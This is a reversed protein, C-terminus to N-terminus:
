SEHATAVPGQRNMPWLDLARIISSHRTLRGSRSYQPGAVGLCCRRHMSKTPLLMIFIALYTGHADCLVFLCGAKADKM